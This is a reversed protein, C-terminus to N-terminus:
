NKEGIIVHKISFCICLNIHMNQFIKRLMLNSLSNIHYKRNIIERGLYMITIYLFFKGKLNTVFIIQNVIKLFTQPARVQMKTSIYHKFLIETTLSSQYFFTFIKSISIEFNEKLQSTDNYFIKHNLFM